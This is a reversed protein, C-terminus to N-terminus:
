SNGQTHCQRCMDRFMGGDGEETVTGTGAMYILGFANKNGHSKHCTFCSPTLTNDTADATWLGQSDMVKLRNTHSAFQTLASGTIDVDATPHRLWDSGDNMNLDTSSGHFLTHCSSCWAGMASKTVDPENYDVDADSYSRPAHEFVDKTLDNTTVAYTVAKNYFKNTSRTSTRLNRYQAAYGHAGHCDTCELGDVNSFTGGPATATSWLTHGDIDDYGVDNARHGAASNLAGARRVTGTYKGANAGFVDPAISNNDHCTLCLDNVEARLLRPFPGGAAPVAFPGGVVYGHQQSYHMTHCDSCVLSVGAHYDGAMAVSALAVVALVALLSFLRKM